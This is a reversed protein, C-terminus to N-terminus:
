ALSMVLFNTSSQFFACVPEHDGEDVVLKVLASADLYHAKAWRDTM